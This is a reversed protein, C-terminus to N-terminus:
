KRRWAKTLRNVAAQGADGFKSLERRLLVVEEEASLEVSNVITFEAGVDAEVIARLLDSAIEDGRKGALMAKLVHTWKAHWHKREREHLADSLNTGSVDLEYAVEKAGLHWVAARIAELQRNWAQGGAYAAPAPLNLQSSM